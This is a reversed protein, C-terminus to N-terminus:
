SAYQANNVSTIPANCQAVSHQATQNALISLWSVDLELLVEIHGDPNGKERRRSFPLLNVNTSM